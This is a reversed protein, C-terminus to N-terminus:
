PEEDVTLLGSTAAHKTPALAARFNSRALRLRSKVTGLPAGTSEAIELATLGELEFACFVVRQEFPLTALLASLRSREQNREAQTLADDQPDVVSSSANGLVERRVRASRRYDSAVRLCIAYLWTTPKARGEFEDIKRLAVVFVEQTLDALDADGVGLRRLGRWVFGVHRDYFLKLQEQGPM